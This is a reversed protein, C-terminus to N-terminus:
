RPASAAGDRRAADIKVAQVEVSLRDVSLELRAIRSELADQGQDVQRALADIEGTLAYYLLVAAAGASGLGRAVELVGAQTTSMDGLRAPLGPQPPPTTDSM